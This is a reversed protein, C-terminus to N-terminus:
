AQNVISLLFVKDEIGPSLAALQTVYAQSTADFAKGIIAEYRTLLFGVGSVLLSLSVSIAFWFGKLSPRRVILFVALAVLPLMLAHEKSFLAAAYAIAAGLLFGFGGQTAARATLYLCVVSFLTAMVISREILYAVAYVSVPNFAFVAVGFAVAADKSRALRSPDPDGKVAPWQVRDMLFRILGYLCIAVSLHLLLNVLRQKWWGEGLLDNVWVFLGYSLLRQKIEAFSGYRGFITGDVLRHDDFILEGRLGPLYIATVGLVLLALWTVKNELSRMIILYFRRAIVPVTSGLQRWVASFQPLLSGKVVGFWLRDWWAGM